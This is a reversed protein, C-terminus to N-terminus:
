AVEVKNLFFYKAYESDCNKIHNILWQDLVVALDDVSVSTHSEKLRESLNFAKNILSRHQSRHEALGPYGYLSLYKEETSFHYITYDILENITSDIIRYLDEGSVSKDGNAVTELFHNAIFILHKHQEDIEPIDVSFSEDWEVFAM